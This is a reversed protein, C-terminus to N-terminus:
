KGGKAIERLLEMFDNPVTEESEELDGYRNYLMKRYETDFRSAGKPHTLGYVKNVTFGLDYILDDNLNFLEFWTDKGSLCLQEVNSGMPVCNEVKLVVEEGISADYGVVLQGAKFNEKRFM